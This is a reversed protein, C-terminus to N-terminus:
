SPRADLKFIDGKYVGAIAGTTAGSFGSVGFLGGNITSYNFSLASATGTRDGVGIEAVIPNNALLSVVPTSAMEPWSGYLDVNTASGWRGSFGNGAKRFFRQCRVRELTPDPPVYLPPAVSGPTIDVGTIDLTENLTNIVRADDGTPGIIAGAELWEGALGRSNTGCGLDINIFVASASTTIWSGAVDGPITIKPREWVNAASLTLWGAYTRGGGSANQLSIPIRAGGPRSTRMICSLTAQLAGSAGYGLRKWVDGTIVFRYMYYDNAAPSAAATTTKLRLYSPVCGTELNPGGTSFTQMTFVGKASTGFGYGGDPGFTVAGSNVTVAAGANPQDIAFDGNLVIRNSTMDRDAVGLIARAAVADAADILTQIFESFGAQTLGLPVTSQNIVAQWAASVNGDGLGTLNVLGDGEGNWGLVYGPEPAPLTPDIQTIPNLTVQRGLTASLEQLLRAQKDFAEETATSSFGGGQELALTQSLPSSRYVVLREDTALVDAGARITLSAASDGTAVSIASLDYDSGETLVGILVGADTYREAIIHSSAAYTIATGSSTLPFPGRTDSGVYVVRPTEVNLTM